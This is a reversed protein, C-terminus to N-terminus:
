WRERAGADRDGDLAVGGAWEGSAREVGALVHTMRLWRREDGPDGSPDGDVAFGHREYLRRAAANDLNVWLTVERAGVERSWAVAAEVLADGAGIGRAWPAIWMAALERRDAETAPAYARALGCPTGYRSVIAVYDDQRTACDIARRDWGGAPVTLEDGVCGSFARPADTLALLRLSRLLLAEDARIRRTEVEIPGQEVTTLDVSAHESAADAPRAADLSAVYGGPAAIAAPAPAVAGVNTGTANM